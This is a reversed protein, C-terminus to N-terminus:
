GRRMKAALFDHAQRLQYEVTRKSCGMRRAVEEQLVGEWHVMVFIARRRAPMQEVLRVLTELDHRSEATQAPGPAPDSWAMATSVEEMSVSRGHRRKVDIALNVAMRVLYGSPSQVPGEAEKTKLRLWADHLADDALESSGLLRAVRLKITAYHKSLYDILSPYADETM